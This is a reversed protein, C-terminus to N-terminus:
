ALTGTISQTAPMAVYSGIMIATFALAVIGAAARQFFENMQMKMEGNSQEPRSQRSGQGICHMLRALNRISANRRTQVLRDIHKCM